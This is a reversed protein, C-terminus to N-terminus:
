GSAISPPTLRYVRDEGNDKKHAARDARLDPNAKGRTEPGLLKADQEREENKRDTKLEEEIEHQTRVLKVGKPADSTSLRM